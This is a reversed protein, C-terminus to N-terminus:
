NNNAVYEQVAEQTAVGVVNWGDLEQADQDSIPNSDWDFDNSVTLGQENVHFDEDTLMTDAQNNTYSNDDSTNINSDDVSNTIQSNSLTDEELEEENELNEDIKNSDTDELDSNSISTNDVDEIESDYLEDKENDLTEEQYETISNDNVDTNSSGVPFIDKNAVFYIGTCTVVSILSIIIIKRIM